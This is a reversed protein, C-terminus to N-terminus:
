EARLRRRSNRPSSLRPHAAAIRPWLRDCRGASRVGRILFTTVGLAHYELFAEAVQERRASWRPPTAWARRDGRRHRHLPAGGAPRGPTGCRAPAAIRCQRALANGPRLAAEGRIRKTEALINEARAWAEDETDALIPASRSASASTARPRNAVTARPRPVSVRAVIERVQRHTEGWLAYVDAHKGAVEIAADSAGGFYIPIRPHQYTKVAASAGAFRYFDGAITSPVTPPGSRNSSASMNTPARTATTKASITATAGSIPTTAARFSTSPRAGVREVSRPHCLQPSRHHPISFGPSARRSFRGEAHRGAAHAALQLGDPGNSHWGILFRDFVPKTM